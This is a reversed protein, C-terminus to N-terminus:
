KRSRARATRESSLSEPFRLVSIEQIGSSFKLTSFSKSVTVNVKSFFFRFCLFHGFQLVCFELADENQLFHPKSMEFIWRTKVDLCALATFAKGSASEKVFFM